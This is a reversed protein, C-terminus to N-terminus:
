HEFHKSMSRVMSPYCKTIWFGQGQAVNGVDSTALVRWVESDHSHSITFCALAPMRAVGLCLLLLMQSCLSM